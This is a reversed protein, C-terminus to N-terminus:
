TGLTCLLGPRSDLLNKAADLRSCRFGDIKRRFEMLAESM